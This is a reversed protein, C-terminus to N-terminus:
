DERFAKLDRNVAISTNLEFGILLIISNIQIWLMMVILAGISGYIKNYTDFSNVYYSFGISTIITLLTALTTGPTFYRSKRRMAPGYRYLISIGTYYLLLIVLWRLILFAQYSFRSIEAWNLLRDLIQRGFIIMLVSIILLVGILITLRISVWIEELYSRSKFSIEHSKDFGRMMAQMGNSAFFLALIFGISLLGGRPILTLQDIIEFLYDSAAGPM